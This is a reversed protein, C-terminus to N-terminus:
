IKDHYKASYAKVASDNIFAGNNRLFELRREDRDWFEEVYLSDQCLKNPNDKSPVGGIRQRYRFAIGDKIEDGSLVKYALNCMAYGASAPDWLCVANITGNKVYERTGFQSVLDPNNAKYATLNFTKKAQRGEKMGSTIFHQFYRYQNTDFLAVLDSNYWRYDWYDYVASYLAVDDKFCNNTLTSNIRPSEAVSGDITEVLQSTQVSQAM